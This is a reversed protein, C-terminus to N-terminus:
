YVVKKLVLGQPPVTPGAFRRDCKEIIARFEELTIKGRGLLLLTGVMNRVMNYLFGDGEFHFILFRGSKRIGARFLTRVTSGEKESSKAQFSRFDHKGILIKAGKQMAEVDAPFPYHYSTRREVASRAHGTLVRYEYTKRKASYRAHFSGSVEKAELVSLDPPLYTNLARVISQLPIEKSTRVSVVQGRAHVGSDTRGAPIISVKHRLIKRFAREFERQVTRGKKQKQFGLFDTGDYEIVLKINRM